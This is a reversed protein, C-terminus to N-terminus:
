EGKCDKLFQELQDKVLKARGITGAGESRTIDKWKIGDQLISVAYEAIDVAKDLKSQLHKNQQRLSYIQGTYSFDKGDAVECDHQGGECSEQALRKIDLLEEIEARLHQIQKDKNVLATDIQKIIGPTVEEIAKDRDDQGATFCVSMMPLDEDKLLRLLGTHETHLLWKEFAEESSLKTQGILDSNMEKFMEKEFDKEAETFECKNDVYKEFMTKDVPEKPQWRCGSSGFTYSCYGPTSYRGCNGCSKVPEAPEYKNV